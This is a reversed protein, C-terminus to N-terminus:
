EGDSGGDPVLAVMYGRLKQAVAAVEAESPAYEVTAVVLQNPKFELTLGTCRDASLGLAELVAVGVPNCPDGICAM